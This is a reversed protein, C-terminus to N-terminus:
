TASKGLEHKEFGSGPSLGTKWRSATDHNVPRGTEAYKKSLQPPGTMSVM